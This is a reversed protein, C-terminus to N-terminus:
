SCSPKPSTIVVMRFKFKALSNFTSITVARTFVALAFFLIPGLICPTMHIEPSRPAIAYASAKFDTWSKSIPGTM